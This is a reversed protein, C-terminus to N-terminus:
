PAPNGGEVHDIFAGVSLGRLLFLNYDQIVRRKEWTGQPWNELLYQMKKLDIYRPAQPSAMLRKLLVQMDHKAATIREHWDASQFGRTTLGLIEQPLVHEMMRRILMRSRGDGVYQEEPIALCFSVLRLDATPDRMDVGDIASNTFHDGPDIRYIATTRIKWGDAQPRGSLDWGARRARDYLNTRHLLDPHIASYDHLNDPKDGKLKIISRWLPQPLFPAISQFVAGRLRRGKSSRTASHIEKLWNLIRGKRLLGPLLYHGDYSITLNGTQGTL